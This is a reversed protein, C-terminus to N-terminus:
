VLGFWTHQGSEELNLETLVPTEFNNLSDFIKLLKNMMSKFKFKNFQAM